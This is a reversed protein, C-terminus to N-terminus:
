LGPLANAAKTQSVKRSNLYLLTTQVSEHDALQQVSYPDEGQTLLETIMTARFGHHFPKISPLNLEKFIEGMARTIDASQKYWPGGRGNDLFYRHCPPRNTLDEELFAFLADNIPKNPWKFKKNTWNLEDNDRIRIERKKLDINELKLSWIAGLRLLCNTAIKFARYLNELRFRRDPDSEAAIAKELHSRISVLDSIEITDMDKKPATAKKLNFRRDLYEHDYAWNLFAQLHRMHKNQTSKSIARGRGSKRVKLANFFKINMARDFESLPHNGVAKLYINMTQDYAKWTDPSNTTQVEDLWIGAAQKVMMKKRQRQQKKKDEAAQFQAKRLESAKANYLVVLRKVREEDPLYSLSALTCLTRRIGRRGTVWGIEPDHPFEGVWNGDRQFFLKRAM